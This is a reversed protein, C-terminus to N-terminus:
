HVNGYSPAGLGPCSCPAGLPAQYPLRCTYVGAHCSYGYGAVPGPPGPPQYAEAVGQCGAPVVALGGILLLAAARRWAARHEGM